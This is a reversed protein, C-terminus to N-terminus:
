SADFAGRLWEIQDGDIAVVDFRCAPLAQLRMLWHQAAYVIRRQKARSISAAASNPSVM